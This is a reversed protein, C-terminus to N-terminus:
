PSEDTERAVVQRGGVLRRASVLLRLTSCAAERLGLATRASLTYARKVVTYYGFEGGFSLKYAAISPINAGAFDCTELGLRCARELVHWYMLTSAAYRSFAYDAVIDIAYLTKRFYGALYMGIVRDDLVARVSFLRGRKGLAEFLGTLFDGTVKTELGSKAFTRTSWELYLALYPSLDGEVIRVGLRRAKRVAKRVNRKCREFVANEGGALSVLCTKRRECIFGRSKVVCSDIEEAFNIRTYDVKHARIWAEYCDMTESLMEPSVLPGLYLTDIGRPSFAVRFIGMQGLFVPFVGIIDDGRQIALPFLDFRTSREQLRLWDMTHYLTAGPLTEVIADWQTDSEVIRFEVM